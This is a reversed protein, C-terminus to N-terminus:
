EHNGGTALKQVFALMPQLSACRKFLEAERAELYATVELPVFDMACLQEMWGNLQEIGWDLGQRAIWAIEPEDPAKRRRAECLFYTAAGLSLDQQWDFLDERFLHWCGFRDIWESWRPLLHEAQCRFCVAAVGIKAACVKHAVLSEFTQRDIDALHGDAATVDCFEAWTRQFFDWFPHAADFYTHYIDRFQNAFYGAAPLLKYEVTAHGDMVNDILRTYYYGSANSVILDSQFELDNSGLLQKEIWCPLLMMPFAVPHLFYDAPEHSGSLSKAWGELQPAVLPMDQYLREFVRALEARM